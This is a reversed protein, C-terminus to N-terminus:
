MGRPRARATESTSPLPPTRWRRRAPGIRRERCRRPPPTRRMRAHEPDDMHVLTKIQVGLAKQEALAREPLLVSEETNPFLEHQREIETVEDHRTVAWFPRFGETEVRALRPAERLEEAARHWSDLDQYAAGDVLARTAPSSSTM